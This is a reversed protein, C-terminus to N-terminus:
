SGPSRAAHWRLLRLAKGIIMAARSPGVNLEEGIEKFTMNHMFRMEIADALRDSNTTKSNRLSTLLKDVDLKSDMEVNENSKKKSNGWNDAGKKRCQVLAGSAYASPWVKYRSKVKHYCADKEGAAEDFQAETVVSEPVTATMEDAWNKFELAEKMVSDSPQNKKLWDAAKEAGVYDLVKMRVDDYAPDLGIVTLIAFPWNKSNYGVASVAHRGADALDRYDGTPSLWKDLAQYTKIGQDVALGAGLAKFGFKNPMIAGAAGGAAIAGSGIANLTEGQKAQNYAEKGTHYGAVGGLVRTIPKIKNALPRRSWLSPKKQAQAKKVTSDVDIKPNSPTDIRNTNFVSGSGTLPANKPTKFKDATQQKLKEWASLPKAPKTNMDVPTIIGSPTTTTGGKLGPEAEVISDQKHTNEKLLNNLYM